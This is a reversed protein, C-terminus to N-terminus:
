NEPPGSIPQVPRESSRTLNGSIFLVKFQGEMRSLVAAAVIAVVGTTVTVGSVIHHAMHVNALGALALVVGVGLLVTPGHREAFGPESVQVYATPRDVARALAEQSLDAQHRFPRITGTSKRDENGGM